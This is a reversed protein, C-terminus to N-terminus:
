KGHRYEILEGQSSLVVVRHSGLQVPHRAIIFYYSGDPERSSHVLELQPWSTERSRVLDTAMRTLEITDM